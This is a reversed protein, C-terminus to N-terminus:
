GETLSSGTITMVILAVYKGKTLGIMWRALSEAAGTYEMVSGFVASVFFILFFDKAYDAAATMYPGLMTEFLPLAAVLAVLM